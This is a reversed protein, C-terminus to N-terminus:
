RVRPPPPFGNTYVSEYRIGAGGADLFRLSQQFLEPGPRGAPSTAELVYLRNEHMYVAAFTRSGDANTLQLHRGEVLDVFNWGFFTPTADRQLFGWVAHEPAGRVDVIWSGVGTYSAGTCGTHADPPCNRAREAHIREADTYDAVTVSYRIGGDECAHVRAPFEAEYESTWTTEELSPACPLNVSFFDARSAHETWGQAFLPGPAGLLLLAPVLRMPRM